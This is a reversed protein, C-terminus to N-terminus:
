PSFLLCIFLFSPSGCLGPIDRLSVANEPSLNILRMMLLNPTRSLATDGGVRLVTQLVHYCLSSIGLSFTKRVLHDHEHCVVTVPCELLHFVFLVAFKLSNPFPKMEVQEKIRVQMTAYGKYLGGKNSCIPKQHGYPLYPLIRM